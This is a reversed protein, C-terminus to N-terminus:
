LTTLDKFLNDMEKVANDHSTHGLINYPHEPNDMITNIKHQAEDPTNTNPSSIGVISDEGLSTGITAFLELLVPNNDLGAEAIYEAQEETAFTAFANQALAMNHDYKNGWTKKLTETNEQELAKEEADDHNLAEKESAVLFDYLAKAQKPLLNNDFAVKLFANDFEDKEEKELLTNYEETTEPKGLKQYVNTWDETTSHQNPIVIKDSGIMKEANIYSQALAEVSTFKSLSTNGKLSDSLLGQLATDTTTEGGDTSANDTSTAPASTDANDTSTDPATTPILGM